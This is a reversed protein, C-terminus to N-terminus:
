GIPVKQYVLSYSGGWSGSQKRCIPLSCYSVGGTDGALHVVSFIPILQMSTQVRKSELIVHVKDFM